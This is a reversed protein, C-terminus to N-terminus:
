DTGDHLATHDTRYCRSDYKKADVQVGGKAGGFPVNVIACKYTMQSALAMVEDQTVHDAFRIGGKAPLRHHSHQVRWGPLSRGCGRTIRVPFRVMYISNCARIQNLIGPPFSQM